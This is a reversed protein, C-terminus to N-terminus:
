GSFSQLLYGKVNKKGGGVISGSGAAHFLCNIKKPFHPLQAIIDKFTLCGECFVVQDIKHKILAQKPNEISGICTAADNENVALRGCIIIKPSAYKLLHILENFEKQSCAAATHQPAVPNKNHIFLHMLFMRLSALAKSLFIAMLMFVLTAKQHTYHKLVFLKMAGYFHKIYIGSLKQTSEGKFHLITTEAFYYNKLGAKQIRYSLDIDEGYMFFNEDFGNTKEVAEKSLMMFAGALADVENTKNQPLHGAYYGAFLKSTPFMKVLGVLKFFSALPSPLCRKSEKLFNGAGNIMPVGVAGCHPQTDFFHLCKSLCDEPIVTDPNLFLIREGKAENIVSNSAKAFGENTNHWKFIVQPFKPVLYERSGDTSHNDVVFIEAKIGECAKQVACLCQELFYKVNYNVIIISLQM